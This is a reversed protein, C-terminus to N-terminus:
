GFYQEWAGTPRAGCDEAEEDDSYDDFNSSDSRSTINVQYPPRIKRAELGAWDFGAFWPHQKIRDVGGKIVVFRETVKRQLLGDVLGKLEPSFRSPYSIPQDSCIMTYTQKPQDAYFPAYSAVLEYAFVGLCWWDVGKGHGTGRIIEPALYDPTGCLTYTKSGDKLEKAFGFDVLKLYGDKDVLLNEPKLDRYIIDFSHMYAFMSAVCATYFRTADESLQGGKNQILGFLEGGLCLELLFYVCRSDKFTAFLKNIFPHDLKEMVQKESVIHSTQNTVIVSRKSVCKLAYTKGDPATTLYVCGFSGKGLIASRKLEAMKYPFRQRRSIHSARRKKSLGAFVINNEKNADVAENFDQATEVPSGNVEVIRWGVQVGLREAQLGKEVVTVKNGFIRM